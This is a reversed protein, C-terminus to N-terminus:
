MPMLLNGIDHGLGASLTGLSAMRETARLREHTAALEAACETVGRFVLVAGGVDGGERRVAAGGAEIPLETGDRRRLAARGASEAAADGRLARVAPSEVPERTEAGRIDFVEGIPRGSAEEASWGTLREAAPN